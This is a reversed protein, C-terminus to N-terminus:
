IICFGLASIAVIFGLLSFSNYLNKLTGIGYTATALLTIISSSTDTDTWDKESLFIICPISFLIIYLIMYIQRLGFHWTAKLPSLKLNGLMMDRLTNASKWKRGQPTTALAALNNEICFFGGKSSYAPMKLGLKEEITNISESWIKSIKLTDTIKKSDTNYFKAKGKPPMIFIVKQLLNNSKLWEIENLLSSGSQVLPLILIRESAIAFEEFAAWWIKRIRENEEESNSDKEQEFYRTGVGLDQSVRQGGIKVVPLNKPAAKALFEELPASNGEVSLSNYWPKELLISMGTDAFFRRIYFIFPEPNDTNLSRHIFRTQWDRRMKQEIKLPTKKYIDMLLLFAVWVITAMYDYQNFNGIYTVFAFSVGLITAIEIFKLLCIFAFFFRDPVLRLIKRRFFRTTKLSHFYLRDRIKDSTAHCFNTLQRM